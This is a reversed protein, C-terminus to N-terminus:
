QVRSALRYGYPWHTRIAQRIRIRSPDERHGQAIPRRHRGLWGSSYNWVTGVPIDVLPRSLMVKAPDSSAFVENENLGETWELGSRMTLLDELTM